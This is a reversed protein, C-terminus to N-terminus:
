GKHLCPIYPWILTKGITSIDINDIKITGSAPEVLRWLLVGLSSKGSGTRGVIGIKEHSRIYGTVNNLVLPLGPRYRM